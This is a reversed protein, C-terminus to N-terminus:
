LLFWSCWRTILIYLVACISHLCTSFHTTSNLINCHHLFCKYDPQAFLLHFIMWDCIMRNVLVKRPCNGVWGVKGMGAGVGRCYVYPLICVNKGVHLKTLQKFYYHSLGFWSFRWKVSTLCFFINLFFRVFLRAPLTIWYQACQSLKRLTWYVVGHDTKGLKTWFNVLLNLHNNKLCIQSFYLDVGVSKKSNQNEHFAHLIQYKTVLITRVWM